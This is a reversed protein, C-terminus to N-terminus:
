NETLGVTMENSTLNYQPKEQLIDEPLIQVSPSYRLSIRYLGKGGPHLLDDPTQIGVLELRQGPRLVIFGQQTLRKGFNCFTHGAPRPYTQHHSVDVVTWDLYMAGDLLSSAPVEVDKKSNNVLFARFHPWDGARVISPGSLRLSLSNISHITDQAKLSPGAFAEVLTFTAIIAFVKCNRM